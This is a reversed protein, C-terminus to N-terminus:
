DDFPRIPYNPSKLTSTKSVLFCLSGALNPKKNGKSYFGGDELADGSGHVTHHSTVACGKKEQLKRKCSPYPRVTNLFVRTAATQCVPSSSLLHPGSPSHRFLSTLGLFVSILVWHCGYLWSLSHHCVIAFSTVLVINLLLLACFFVCLM